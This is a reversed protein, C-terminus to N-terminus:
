PPGLKESRKRLAELDVPDIKISAPPISAKPIIASTPLRGREINVTEGTRIDIKREETSGDSFIKSRTLIAGSMEEKQTLISNARGSDVPIRSIQAQAVPFFSFSARNSDSNKPFPFWQSNKGFELYIEGEEYISFWAEVTGVSNKVPVPVSALPSKNFYKKFLEANIKEADTRPLKAAAAYVDYGANLLAPVVVLVGTAKIIWGRFGENESGAQSSGSSITNIHQESPDRTSDMSGGAFGFSTPKTYSTKLRKFDVYNYKM